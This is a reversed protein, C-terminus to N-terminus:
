ADLGYIYADHNESGDSQNDKAPVPSQMWKYLPDNKIMKKREAYLEVAQVISHEIDDNFTQLDQYVADPINVTIQM